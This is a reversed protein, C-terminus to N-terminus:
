DEDDAKEDHVVVATAAMRKPLILLILGAIIVILSGLQWATRISYEEAIYGLGLMGILGGLQGLVSQLSLLTSRKDDPVYDHFLSQGPAGQAGLICNLGVLMLVFIYINASLSLGFLLIASIFILFALAKANNEKFFNVVPESIAAGLAMSFFYISTIIGIISVAYQSDIMPKAFPIWFTELTFLTLSMLGISLLLVSVINHRAAYHFSDKLILPVNAFGSIIAARDIPQRDEKIFILTFFLVFIVVVFNGILAADYIGFGYQAIKPGFYDALFGGLVAGLALGSQSSFQVKALIPLTGFRPALKNFTEIYWADLTGTALARCLGYIAYSLLAAEFSRFYLLIILSTIEALLSAIYVPKRGIGDALGGLPLELLLATGSYTATILAIDFLNFGREQLLLVLVVLTIGFGGWSLFQQTQFIRVHKQAANPLDKFKYKAQKQM